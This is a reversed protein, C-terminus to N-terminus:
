EASLILRSGLSRRLRGRISLMPHGHHTKSVPFDMPHGHHTKSVPFDM